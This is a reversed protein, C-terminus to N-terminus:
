VAPTLGAQAMVERLPGTIRGAILDIGAQDPHLNDRLHAAEDPGLLSLGDILTVDDRREAVVDQLIQRTRTVTLAGVDNGVSRPAVAFSGDPEQLIPGPTNEQMPCVIASVLVIPTSPHQDRITDLWGHVAPRFTRERMSDANVINIGIACSILDADTRAITRALCQDLQANGSLSLDILELGLTRAVRVPWRRSASEAEAGHSISSGYHVWRPLKSAVPEMPEDSGISLLECPCAHPLLFEVVGSAGPTAVVTDGAGPAFTASMTPFDPIVRGAGPLPVSRWEPAAADLIDILVPQRPDLPYSNLHLSVPAQARVRLTVADPILEAWMFQLDKVQGRLDVPVRHVMVGGAPGPSVDAFPTLFTTLDAGRFATM